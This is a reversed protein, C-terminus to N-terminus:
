LAERFARELEENFTAPASTRSKVVNTPNIINERTKDSEDSTPPEGDDSSPAKTDENDDKTKVVEFQASVVMGNRCITVEIPEGEQHYQTYESDWWSSLEENDRITEFKVPFWSISFSHFTGDLVQKRYKRTSIFGDDPRVRVVLMPAVEHVHTFYKKGSPSEWSKLPVGLQYNDHNLMINQYREPVQNFWKNFFDVMFETTVFDGVPDRKAWSCPGYVVIEDDAGKLIKMDLASKKKILTGSDVRAQIGDAIERADAENHFLSMEAVCADYSDWRGFPIVAM